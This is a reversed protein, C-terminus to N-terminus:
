SIIQEGYFRGHFEEKEIKWEKFNNYQNNLCKMLNIIVWALNLGLLYFGVLTHRALM